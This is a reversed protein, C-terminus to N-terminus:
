RVFSTDGDNVIVISLSLRNQGTSVTVSYDLWCTWLNIVYELIYVRFLSQQVQDAEDSKDLRVILSVVGLDFTLCFGKDLDAEGTFCYTFLIM